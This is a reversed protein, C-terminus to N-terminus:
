NNVMENFRKKDKSALDHYRKKLEPSLARWRKGIVRALNLFSVLGHRKKHPKKSRDEEFHVLLFEETKKHISEQFDNLKDSDISKSVEDLYKALGDADLDKIVSFDHDNSHDDSFLINTSSLLAIVVEKEEM